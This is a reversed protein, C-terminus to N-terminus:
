FIIWIELLMYCMAHKWAQCLWILQSPELYVHQHWLLHMLTACSSTLGMGAPDVNWLHKRNPTHLVVTEWDTSQILLSYIALRWELQFNCTTVKNAAFLLDIIWQCTPESWRWTANKTSAVLCTETRKLIHCAHVFIETAMNQVILSQLVLRRLSYNDIRM